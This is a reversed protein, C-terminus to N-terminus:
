GADARHRRQGGTRGLRNLADILGGEVAEAPLGFQLDLPFLSAIQGILNQSRQALVEPKLRQRRGRRRVEEEVHFAIREDAVVAELVEEANGFYPLLPRLMMGEPRVVSLRLLAGELLHHVEEDLPKIAM